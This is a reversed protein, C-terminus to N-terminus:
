RKRMRRGERDSNFPGLALARDHRVQVLDQLLHRVPRLRDVSLRRGVRHARSGHVGVLLLFFSIAATTVVVSPSSSSFPSLCRCFRCATPVARFARARARAPPPPVPRAPHRPRGACAHHRAHVKALVAQFPVAQTGAETKRRGM